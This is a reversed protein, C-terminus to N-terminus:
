VPIDVNFFSLKGKCPHYPLVQANKLVFGNPGDFWESGSKQVCDVLEAKGVIGGALVPSNPLLISYKTEILKMWKEWDGKPGRYQSAHILFEGRFKTKWTRNEIDKLGNVILWAWPQRISLAKM